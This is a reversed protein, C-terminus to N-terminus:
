RSTSFGSYQSNIVRAVQTALVDVAVANVVYTVRIM